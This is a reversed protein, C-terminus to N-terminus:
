RKMAQQWNPLCATKPVDGTERLEHPQSLQARLVEASFQLRTRHLRVHGNQGLGTIKTTHSAVEATSQGISSGIWARMLFRDTRWSFFLFGQSLILFPLFATKHALMITSLTAASFLNDHGTTGRGAWDESEFAVTVAHGFWTEVVPKDVYERFGFRFSPADSRSARGATRCFKLIGHEADAIALCISPYQSQLTEPEDYGM